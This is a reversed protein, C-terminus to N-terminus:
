DGCTWETARSYGTRETLRRRPRLVEEIAACLEGVQGAVRALAVRYSDPAFRRRPSTPGLARHPPLAGLAGGRSSDDGDGMIPVAVQLSLLLRMLAEATDLAEQGPPAGIGDALSLFAPRILNAALDPNAVVVARKGAEMLGPAESLFAAIRRVDGELLRLATPWVEDKAAMLADYAFLRVVEEWHGVPVEQDAASMQPWVQGRYRRQVEAASVAGSGPPLAVAYESRAARTEELARRVAAPPDSGELGRSGPLGDRRACGLCFWLFDPMPGVAANRDVVERVQAVWERAGPYRMGVWTEARPDEIANLLIRVPVGGGAVWEFLGYRSVLHHGVEHALCGACYVVGRTRLERERVYLIRRAPDYAWRDLSLSVSVRADQCLGAALSALQRLLVDTKV